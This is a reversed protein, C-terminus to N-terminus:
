CPPHGDVPGNPSIAHAAGFYRQYWVWGLNALILALAVGLLLPAQTKRILNIVKIVQIFPDTNSHATKLHAKFYDVEPM